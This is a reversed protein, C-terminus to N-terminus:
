QILVGMKEHKDKERKKYNKFKFGKLDEVIKDIQCFFILRNLDNNVCCKLKQKNNGFYLRLM